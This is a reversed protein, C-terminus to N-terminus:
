EFSLANATHVITCAPLELPPHQLVHQDFEIEFLRIKIARENMGIAPCYRSVGRLRVSWSARRRFGWGAVGFAAVGVVLCLLSRRVLRMLIGSLGDTLTRPSSALARPSNEALHPSM